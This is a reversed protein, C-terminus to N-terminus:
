FRRGLHQGFRRLERFARVPWIRRKAAREQLLREQCEALESRLSARDGEAKENAAEKAALLGKMDDRAGALHHRTLACAREAMENAALLGKVEDRAGALEGRVAALLNTAEDRADALEDHSAQLPEFETNLKDQLLRLQADAESPRLM